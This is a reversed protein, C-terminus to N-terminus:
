KGAVVTEVYKGDRNFVHSVKGVIISATNAKHDLLYTAKMGAISRVADWLINFERDAM